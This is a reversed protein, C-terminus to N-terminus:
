VVIVLLGTRTPGFLMIVILLRACYGVIEGILRGLMGFIHEGHEGCWHGTHVFSAFGNKHEHGHHADHGDKKDVHHINSKKTPVKEVNNIIVRALPNMGDDIWKEAM